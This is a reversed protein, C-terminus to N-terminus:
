TQSDWSNIRAKCSRSKMKLCGIKAWCIMWRIATSVGWVQARKKSKNSSSSNNNDRNNKKKKKKSRPKKPAVDGVAGRPRLRRNPARDGKRRVRARMKKRSMRMTRRVKKIITIRSAPKIRPSQATRM